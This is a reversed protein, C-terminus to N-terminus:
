AHAIACWATGSITIPGDGQQARAAGELRRRGDDDLAAWLDGPPGVGLTYPAWWDEFTPHVVEVTLRAEHVDRLGAADFVRVLDGERMGALGSEDYAGRDAEEVAAWFASLPSGGDDARTWATAAVVAGPRAVRRMERLGQVPDAMFPVVLQAVALDFEGDDFPLHEAGAERVDVGPLRERAAAVFPPSPDVACVSDAGLQAALEATLVGPGCGVDLARAPPHVASEAGLTRLLETALPASYRGMFRDYADGAVDFAM